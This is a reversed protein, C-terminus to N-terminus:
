AKVRVLEGRENLQILSETELFRIAERTANLGFESELTQIKLPGNQLMELMKEAVTLGKLPQAKMEKKKLCVDCIGCPNVSADGFYGAIYQSRCTTQQEFYNVMRELRNSYVEKRKLHEAYNFSFDDQYMRNLILFVSPQEIRARYDVIGMGHLQHLGKSIETEDWRMFRALSSENLKVDHDLIGEYMRLLGKILLNLQSFGTDLSRLSEANITFRVTSPQWTSENFSLIGAKELAQIAYTSELINFKFNDSFRALDFPYLQGAGIGAAVGLYNMLSLYVKKIQEYEPFRLNLMNRLQTADGPTTLLIAKSYQRDRGARGAEQYYNELCDPTDFHVVLRVDPKDIGMGFANTCVMIKTRGSIWDDQKRTRMETTLGAHYFDASIGQMQLLDAIAKTQRRSKCYVIGSGTQEKFIEAIYHHKSEPQIVFYALNPREFSQRFRNLTHLHLQVAIDEQVDETASATLAIVPVDPLQRRIQNIKLYAPRFDYGWQSICHAEDIALLNIDMDFMANKFATTDLREPSVYLFKLAGAVALRLIDQIERFSLGTHIAQAPINRQNLQEVQDKMLAILPSVVLCMGELMMAPVQFCISKGGGTPLIALTHNGSVVSRIIDEQM